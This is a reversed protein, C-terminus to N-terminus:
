GDAISADDVLGLMEAFSPDSEIELFRETFRHAHDAVSGHLRKPTIASVSHKKKSKAGSEAGSKDPRVGHEGEFQSIEGIAVVPDNFIVQALRAQNQEAFFLPLAFDLVRDRLQFFRENGIIHHQATSIHFAEVPERLSHFAPLVPICKQASGAKPLQIRSCAALFPTDQLLRALISM